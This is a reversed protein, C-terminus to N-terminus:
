SFSVFHCPFGYLTLAERPSVDRGGADGLDRLMTSSVGWGSNHFYAKRVGTKLLISLRLCGLGATGLLIWSTSVLSTSHCVASSSLQESVESFITYDRIRSSLAFIDYLAVSYNGFVDTKALIVRNMM